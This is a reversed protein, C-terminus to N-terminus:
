HLLTFRYRLLTVSYIHQVSSCLLYLTSASSMKVLSLSMFDPLTIYGLRTLLNFVTYSIHSVGSACGSLFPKILDLHWWNQVERVLRRQGRRTSFQASIARQYDCWKTLVEERDASSKWRESKVCLDLSLASTARCNRKESQHCRWMSHLCLNSTQSTQFATWHMVNLSLSKEVLNRAPRSSLRGKPSLYMSREGWLAVRCWWSDSDSWIMGVKGRFGGTLLGSSHCHWGESFLFQRAVEAKDNSRQTFLSLHFTEASPSSTKVFHHSQWRAILAWNEVRRPWWRSTLSTWSQHCGSPMFGKKTPTCWIYRMDWIRDEM